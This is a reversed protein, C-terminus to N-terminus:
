RARAVIYEWHKADIPMVSLRSGKSILSIDQLEKQQKIWSLTIPSKFAQKFQVDVAYWKPKEESHKPDFGSHDPNSATPDLYHERVVEAIGVIAPVKCSSHYFFVQDGQKMSKLNNRAQYNRVGDWMETANPRSQLDELSFSDPESKVLWFNM